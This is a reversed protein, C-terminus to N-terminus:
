IAPWAGSMPGPGRLTGIGDGSGGLAVSLYRIPKSSVNRISGSVTLKRHDLRALLKMDDFRIPCGPQSAIFLLASEPPVVVFRNEESTPRQAQVGNACLIWVSVMIVIVCDKPGRM